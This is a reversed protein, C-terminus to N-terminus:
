RQRASVTEGEGNLVISRIGEAPAAIRKAIAPEHAPAAHDNWAPEAPDHREQGAQQRAPHEELHHRMGLQRSPPRGAAYCLLGEHAARM